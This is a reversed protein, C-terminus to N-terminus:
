GKFIKLHVLADDLKTRLSLPLIIGFISLLVEHFEDTSSLVRRKACKGDHYYFLIKDRLLYRADNLVISMWISNVFISSPHTWGFYAMMQYDEKTQEQNDFIYVPKWEETTENGQNSNKLKVQLLYSCDSVTDIRFTEHSTIQEAGIKVSDGDSMRLPATLTLSGFGVDAIFSGENNVDVRLLSHSRPALPADPGRSGYVVRAVLCRTTFGLQRLAVNFLLNNERCGGGRCSDVLKEQLSRANLSQPPFGMVIDLNEFPIAQPHLYHLSRLTELTATRPGDYKIRKLYAELNISSSEEDGSMILFYRRIILTFHDM